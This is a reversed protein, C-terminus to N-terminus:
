SQMLAKSFFLSIGIQEPKKAIYRLFSMFVALSNKRFTCLFPALLSCSMSASQACGLGAFDHIANQFIKGQQM